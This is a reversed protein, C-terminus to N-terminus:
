SQQFCYLHQDEDCFQVSGLDTWNQDTVIPDAMGLNGVLTHLARTWGNCDNADKVTGDVLTNTWVLDSNLETEGDETRIIPNALLGDTLDDWNNAM